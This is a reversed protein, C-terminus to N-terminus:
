FSKPAYLGACDLEPVRAPPVAKPLPPKPPADCFACILAASVTPLGGDEAEDPEPEGDDAVDPEREV